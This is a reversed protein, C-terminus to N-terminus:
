SGRGPGITARLADYPGSKNTRVSFAARAGAPPVRAGRTDPINPVATAGPAAALVREIAAVLRGADSRFSEYRIFLANRRALGALSEPLDDRGPMVAARAAADHGYTVALYAAALVLLAHYALLGLLGGSLHAYKSRAM